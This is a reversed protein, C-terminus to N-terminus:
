PMADRKELIYGAGRVTRIGIDSCLLRLKKRLFGIYTWVVDIDADTELGWIKEMLHETSFIQGPSRLLLEMLQYEKNNLRIQRTPSSLLYSSCALRTNGFSLVPPAYLPGRRTLARVRALLECVSFPVSLCDDAGADLIAAREDPEKRATLFLIPTSFGLERIKVLVSIEDADSLELGAVLADYEMQSLYGLADEGSRVTDVTYRHKELMSKLIETVYTNEEAVLIRM